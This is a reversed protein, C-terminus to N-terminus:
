EQVRISIELRRNTAQIESTMNDALPRNDGFGKATIRETPGREGEVLNYVESSARAASLKWNSYFACGRIPVNDIHGSELVKDRTTAQQLKILTAILIGGLITLISPNNFFLDSEGGFAIAAGVVFLGFILDILTTIDIDYGAKGIGCLVKAPSRKLLNDAPAAGNL